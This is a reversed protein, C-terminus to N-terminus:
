IAVRPFQFQPYDKRVRKAYEGSDDGAFNNRLSPFTELSDRVGRRNGEITKEWGNYDYPSNVYL